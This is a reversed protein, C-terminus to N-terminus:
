LPAYWGLVSITEVECGGLSLITVEQERQPKNTTQLRSVDHLETEGYYGTCAEVVVVYSKHPKQHDPAFLSIGAYIQGYENEAAPKGYVNTRERDKQTQKEKKLIEQQQSSASGWTRAGGEYQNESQVSGASPPAIPARSFTKAISAAPSCLWM